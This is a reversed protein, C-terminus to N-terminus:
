ESQHSSAAPTAGPPVVVVPCKAVGILGNSVSGLVLTKFGGRGRSGVVILAAGEKAALAALSDSPRGSLVRREAELAGANAIVRDIIAEGAEREIETQPVSMPVRGLNGGASFEAHVISAQIPDTVHAVVLRARLRATLERAALLAHVSDDSGDVGCIVTPESPLAPEGSM